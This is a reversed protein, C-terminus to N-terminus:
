DAPVEGPKLGEIEAEDVPLLKKFGFITTAGAFYMWLGFIASSFFMSSAFDGMQDQLLLAITMSLSANRLGVELSIARTQYNNIGVAKSIVGAFIMGLLTLAFIIGYFKLLRVIYELLPKQRVGIPILAKQFYYTLPRLRKGPGGCLILCNVSTM